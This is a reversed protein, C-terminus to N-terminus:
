SPFIHKLNSAAKALTFDPSVEITRAAGPPGLRVLSLAQLLELSDLLEGEAISLAQALAALNAVRGIEPDNATNANVQEIVSILRKLHASKSARSKLSPPGDPSELDLSFPETQVIIEVDNASLETRDTLRKLCQDRLRGNLDADIKRAEAFQDMHRKTQDSFAAELTRVKQDYAAFFEAQERSDIATKREVALVVRQKWAFLWKTAATLGIDLVPYILTYILGVVAPLGVTLCLRTAIDPYVYTEVFYVKEIFKGDGFCVILFKYNILPWALLASGFFPSGIREKIREYLSEFTKQPDMDIQM